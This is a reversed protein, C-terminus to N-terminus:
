LHHFRHSINIKNKYITDYSAVTVPYTGRHQGFVNENMNLTWECFEVRSDPYDETLYKLMQLKSSLRVNSQSVRMQASLRRPGKMPSRAMTARVQVSTGEDTATKSRGSRSVDAVSGARKFKM